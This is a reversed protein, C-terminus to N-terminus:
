ITLMCVSHLPILHVRFSPGWSAIQLVGQSQRMPLLGEPAFASSSATCLPYCGVVIVQMTFRKRCILWHMLIQNALRSCICSCIGSVYQALTTM